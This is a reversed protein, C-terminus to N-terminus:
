DETRLIEEAAYRGERICDPVGVGRYANGILYLGPVSTRLKEIRAVRDLHGVEYQPMSRPWRFVRSFAPQSRVGLIEAFESQVLAIAAAESLALLAEDRAGGLFGRLLVLDSAVRHGFKNGTFTCALLRRRETAPVLFGFGELYVGLKNLEEQPFALSVILSSSYAIKGLEEPLEKGCGQLLATAVYAPVALIVADFGGTFNAGQLMWQHRNKAPAVVLNIACQTHVGVPDLRAALADLLQQMGNKLSTFISRQNQKEHAPKTQSQLARILSGQQEEMQVFRPLITRVSLERAHGGYVGALMPDAVRDV